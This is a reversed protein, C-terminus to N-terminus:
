LRAIKAITLNRFFGKKKTEYSRTRIDFSIRRVSLREKDIKKERKSQDELLM